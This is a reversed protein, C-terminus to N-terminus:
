PPPTSLTATITRRVFGPNGYVGDSATATIAFVQVTTGLETHATAACSVEVAYGNVMIDPSAGTPPCSGGPLAQAAAWDIGARAAAQAQAQRLVLTATQHQVGAMSLMFAVLAALVVILFVAAILSFGQQQQATPM